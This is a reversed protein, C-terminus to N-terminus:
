ELGVLAREEHVDAEGGALGDLARYEADLARLGWAEGGALFRRREEGAEVEAHGVIREGARTAEPDRVLGLAREVRGGGRSRRARGASVAMSLSFVAARRAESRLM